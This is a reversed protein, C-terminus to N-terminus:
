TTNPGTPNRETPDRQSTQTNRRWANTQQSPSERTTTIQTTNQAIAGATINCRTPIDHCTTNGRATAHRTSLRQAVNKNRARQM